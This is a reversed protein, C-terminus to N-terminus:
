VFPDPFFPFFLLRILRQWVASYKFYFFFAPPAPVKVKSFFDMAYFAPLTFFRFLVPLVLLVSGFVIGLSLLGLLIVVLKSVNKRLLKFIFYCFLSLIVYVILSEFIFVSLVWKGLECGGIFLGSNCPFVSDYVRFLALLVVVIAPWLMFRM